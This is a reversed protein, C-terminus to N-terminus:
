GLHQLGVSARNHADLDVRFGCPPGAGDTFPDDDGVQVVHIEISLEACISKIHDEGGVYQLMELIWLEDELRHLSKKRRAAAQDSGNGLNSMDAHTKCQQGSPKGIAFAPKQVARM